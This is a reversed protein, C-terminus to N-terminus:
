CTMLKLLKNEDWLTISGGDDVEVKWGYTTIASYVSKNQASLLYDFAEAETAVVKKLRSGRYIRIM